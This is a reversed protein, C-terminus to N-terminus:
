LYKLYSEGATVEETETTINVRNSSTSKFDLKNFSFWSNFFNYDATHM